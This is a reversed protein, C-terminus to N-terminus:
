DRLKKGTLELFVTELSPRVLSLSLVKSQGGIIKQLVDNLCDSDSKWSVVLCNKDLTCTIVGNINKIDDCITENVEIMEVSLKSEGMEANLLESITGLAIVKGYDMIAVRDCITEIEEMYHSTYIVTTGKQNLARVAELINNRSQPDVGVTPEDMFLISPNHVIACAINLRRKMGGSFNAAKDKRRDWLGITKLAEEVATKLKQGKLGYIKAWYTVNDM